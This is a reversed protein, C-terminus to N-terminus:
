REGTGPSNWEIVNDRRMLCVHIHVIICPRRWCLSHAFKGIGILSRSGIHARLWRSGMGNKCVSGKEHSGDGLGGTDDIIWHIEPGNLAHVHRGVRLFGIRIRVVRTIFVGILKDVATPGDTRLTVGEYQHVTGHLYSQRSPPLTLCDVRM